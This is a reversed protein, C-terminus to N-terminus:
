ATESYTSKKKLTDSDVFVCYVLDGDTVGHQALSFEGQMLEQGRCILQIIYVPPQQTKKRIVRILDNVTTDADFAFYPLVVSGSGYMQVQVGQQGSGVASACFRVIGVIPQVLGTVGMYERLVLDLTRQETSVPEPAPEDDLDLSSVDDDRPQEKKASKTGKKRPPRDDSM